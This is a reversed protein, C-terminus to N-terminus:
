ELINSDTASEPISYKQGKSLGRVSSGMSSNTKAITRGPRPEAMRNLMPADLPPVSTTAIIKFFYVLTLIPLASRNLSRNIVSDANKIKSIFVKRNEISPSNVLDSTISLTMSLM